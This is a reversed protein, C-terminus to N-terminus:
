EDNCVSCLRAILYLRLPPLLKLSRCDSFGDITTNFGGHCRCGWRTSVDGGDDEGATLWPVHVSSLVLPM